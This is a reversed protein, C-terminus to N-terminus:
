SDSGPSFDDIFDFGDDGESDSATRGASQKRRLAELENELREREWLSLLEEKSMHLAAPLSAGCKECKSYRRNYVAFGCEPCAPKTKGSM